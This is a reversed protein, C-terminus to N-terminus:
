TQMDDTPMEVLRRCCKPREAPVRTRSHRYISAYNCLFLWGFDQQNLTLLRGALHAYLTHVAEVCMQTNTAALMVCCTQQSSFASQVPDTPVGQHSQLHPHVVLCLQPVHTAPPSM